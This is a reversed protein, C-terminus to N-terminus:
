ETKEICEVICGQILRVRLLRTRSIGKVRQEHQEPHCFAGEGVQPLGPHPTERLPNTKTTVGTPPSAHAFAFWARGFIWGSHCFFQGDGVRARGSNPLTDQLGGEWTSLFGVSHEKGQNPFTPIPLTGCPTLEITVGHKVRLGRCYSRNLM